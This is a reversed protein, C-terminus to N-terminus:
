EFAFSEGVRNIRLGVGLSPLRAVPKQHITMEFASKFDFYIVDYAHTNLGTLTSIPAFVGRDLQDGRPNAALSRSAKQRIGISVIACM